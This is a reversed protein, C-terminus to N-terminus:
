MMIKLKTDPIKRIGRKLPAFNESKEPVSDHTFM